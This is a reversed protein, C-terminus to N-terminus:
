KCTEKTVELLKWSITVSKRPVLHDVRFLAYHDSDADCAHVLYVHGVIADISPERTPNKHAPLDPITIDDTWEYKGLDIIRSRDDVVMTVDFTDRDPSNGFLIDWNNRTIKLSEEGNVGHKFSFAARVYTDTFDTKRRAELTVSKPEVYTQQAVSTTACLLLVLPLLLLVTSRTLTLM